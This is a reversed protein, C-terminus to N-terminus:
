TRMNVRKSDLTLGVGLLMMSLISEDPDLIRPCSMSAANVKFPM